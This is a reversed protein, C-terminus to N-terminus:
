QCYESSAYNREAYTTFIEYATRARSYLAVDDLIMDPSGVSVSTFAGSPPIPTADSRSAVRYGNYFLSLESGARTISICVWQGFPFTTVAGSSALNGFPTNLYLNSSAVAVEMDDWRFVSVAEQLTLARQPNLWFEISFDEQGVGFRQAVAPTTQNFAGIGFRTVSNTITAFQLAPRNSQAALNQGGTDGPWYDLMGEPRPFCPPGSQVCQFDDVIRVIDLLTYPATTWRQLVFETDALTTRGDGDYDGVCPTVLQLPKTCYISVPPPFPKEIEGCAEAIPFWDRVFDCQCGDALGVETM